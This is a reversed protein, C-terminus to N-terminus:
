EFDPSAKCVIRSFIVLDTIAKSVREEWEQCHSNYMKASCLISNSPIRSPDEDVIILRPQFTVIIFSNKSYSLTHSLCTVHEKHLLPYKIYIDQQINEVLEDM